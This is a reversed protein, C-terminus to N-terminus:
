YNIKKMKQINLVSVILGFTSIFGLIIFNLVGDYTEPNKINTGENEISSNNTKEGITYISFHNTEFVAYGDIITVPYKEIKNDSTIYYAMLNKNEMDKPIPFYVKFKGNVLDTIYENKSSSYLSIDASIADDLGLINLINKFKDSDKDIFEFNIVTDSPIDKSDSTIIANSVDDKIWFETYLMRESNKEIFFKYDEGNINFIYYEGITNNVNVIESLPVVWNNSNIESIQGGYTIKISNNGM